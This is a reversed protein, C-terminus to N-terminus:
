ISKETGGFILALTRFMDQSARDPCGYLRGGLLRFGTGDDWGLEARQHVM